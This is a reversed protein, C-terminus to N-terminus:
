KKKVPASTLNIEMSMPFHDSNIARGEKDVNSYNTLMHVKGNDIKMSKVYPLVRECVVYFDITSQKVEKDYKRSRTILGETLPLSNVCILKNEKIFNAFM